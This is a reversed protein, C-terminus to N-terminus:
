NLLLYDTIYRAHPQYSLASRRWFRRAVAPSQHATRRVRVCNGLHWGASRVAHRRGSAGTSPVLSDGRLGHVRWENRFSLRCSWSRLLEFEVWVTMDRWSVCSLCARCTTCTRTTRTPSMDWCVWHWNNDNELTFKWSIEIVKARFRTSLTKWRYCSLLSKLM